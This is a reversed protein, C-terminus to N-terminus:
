TYFQLILLLFISFSNSPPAATQVTDTDQGSRDRGACHYRSGTSLPLPMQLQKIGM